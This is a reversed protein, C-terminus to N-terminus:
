QNNWFWVLDYFDFELWESIDITDGTLRELSLGGDKGETRSYIEAEWVMVFDWVRKPINRQVRRRNFRGKIIKIVIETINEWPSHPETTQVKIRALRTVRQMEKNYRTHDPANDIFIENAVGVDRKIRDLTTGAESKYM